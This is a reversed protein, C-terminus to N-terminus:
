DGDYESEKLGNAYYDEITGKRAKVIEIIKNLTTIEAEDYTDHLGIAALSGDINAYRSMWKQNRYGEHFEILPFYGYKERFWRFAQSFLPAATFYDDNQFQVSSDFTEGSYTALCTEHFGLEKLAVAQQYNVFLENM